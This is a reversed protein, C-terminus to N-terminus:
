GVGLKIFAGLSALHCGGLFVFALMSPSETL